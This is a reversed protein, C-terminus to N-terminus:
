CKNGYNDSVITGDRITIIRDGYSSISQDHTVTIVAVKRTENIRKLLEMIEKSNESDLAGTPEDALIIVPDNILARAIAVRQQEGCSLSISRHNERHSLGVSQLLQRAKNKVEKPKKGAIIAPLMVNELATLRPILNYNQFIFGMKKGRFDAVEKGTLKSTDKGEVYIRGHTPRDLLGMCYLLTSKGSGSPGVICVFEGPFIDLSIERLAIVKKGYEEYVRTVKELRVIPRDM